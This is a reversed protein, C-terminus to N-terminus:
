YVVLSAEVANDLYSIPPKADILWITVFIVVWGVIFSFFSAAHRHQAYAEPILEVVAICSMIGAVTAQVNDVARSTLHVYRLLLIGFAAGLPESLGSAVTVLLATTRYSAAFLPVAIALGEPINHLAIAIAVVFGTRRSTSASVAVALGEPLNHATLALAMLIGLRRNRRERTKVVVTGGGARDICRAATSLLWYILCGIVFFVGAMWEGESTAPVVLELFSVALMVGAALSMTSAMLAAPVGRKPNLCCVVLGGVSTAAGAFFSMAFADIYSLELEDDHEQRGKTATLNAGRLGRRRAPGFMPQTM